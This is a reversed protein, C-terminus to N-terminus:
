KSDDLVQKVKDPTMNGYTKDNIEVIPAMACLGSCSTTGLCCEHDGTAEGLKIGMQNQLEGLVDQGGRVHCASGQCVKVEKKLPPTFRFDHYFAAVGYVYSEASRLFKAIKQMAELPLYGFEDQVEHLIPILETKEAKHRNLIEALQEKMDADM